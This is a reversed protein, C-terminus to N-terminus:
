VIGNRPISMTSWIQCWWALNIPQVQDGWSTYIMIYRYLKYLKYSRRCDFNFMTLNHWIWFSLGMLELQELQELQELNRLGHEARFIAPQKSSIHKQWVKQPMPGLWRTSRASDDKFGFTAAFLGSVKTTESYPLGPNGACSVYCFCAVFFCGICIYIYVYIINWSVRVNM